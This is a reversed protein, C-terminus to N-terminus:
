CRSRPFLITVRATKREKQKVGAEVKQESQTSITTQAAAFLATSALMVALAMAMVNRAMM